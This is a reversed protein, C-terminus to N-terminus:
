YYSPGLAVHSAYGLYYTYKSLGYFSLKIGQFDVAGVYYDYYM